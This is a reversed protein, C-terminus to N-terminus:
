ICENVYLAYGKNRFTKITVTKSLIRLKKRLYSVYVEVNNEREKSLPGWLEREITKKPVIQQIQAHLLRFLKSELETLHVDNVANYLKNTTINFSLNGVTILHEQYRFDRKDIIAQLKKVFTEITVPQILYQEETLSLELLSANDKKEALVILHTTCKENQLKKIIAFGNLSPLTSQVIAVDYHNSRIYHYGDLGDQVEDVNINRINLQKKVANFFPKQNGVLLVNM